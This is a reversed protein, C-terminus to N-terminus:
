CANGGPVGLCRCNLGGREQVMYCGGGTAHLEDFCVGCVQGGGGSGAMVEKMEERSLVHSLVSKMKELSMKEKKM